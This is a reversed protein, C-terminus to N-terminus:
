ERPSDKTAPKGTDAFLVGNSDIMFHRLKSDTAEPDAHVEFDYGNQDITFIYAGSKGGALAKSILGNEALYSLSLSPTVAEGNSNYDERSVAALAGTQIQRLEALTKVEIAKNLMGGMSFSSRQPAPKAPEKKVSETKVAPKAAAPTAKGIDPIKMELRLSQGDSISTLSVYNEGIDVIKYNGCTDGKKYINGNIVASLNKQSSFDGMVGDLTLSKNEASAHLSILLFCAFILCSYKKM